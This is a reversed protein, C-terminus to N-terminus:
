GRPLDRPASHYRQISTYDEQRFFSGVRGTKTELVVHCSTPGTGKAKEEARLGAAAPASAILSLLSAHLGV